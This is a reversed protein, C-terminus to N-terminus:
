LEYYKLIEPLFKNDIHTEIFNLFKSNDNFLVFRNSIDSIDLNEILNIVQRLIIITEQRSAGLPINHKIFDDKLDFGLLVSCAKSYSIYLGYKVLHKELKQQNEPLKKIHFRYYETLEDKVAALLKIKTTERM